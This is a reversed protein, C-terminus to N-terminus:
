NSKENKRKRRINELNKLSAKGQLYATLGFVLFLIIYWHWSAKKLALEGIIVFLCTSFKLFSYWFIGFNKIIWKSVKIKETNGLKISIYTTVGDAISVICFIVYLIIKILTM